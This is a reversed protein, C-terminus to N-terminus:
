PAPLLHLVSGSSQRNSAIFLEGQPSVWLGALTGECGWYTSATAQVRLDASLQTWAKGNYHLLAGFSGSVFVETSSRGWVSVWNDQITSPIGGIGCDTRAFEQVRKRDIPSGLLAVFLVIEHEASLRVLVLIRGVFADYHVDCNGCRGSGIFTCRETGTDSGPRTRYDENDGMRIVFYEEDKALDPLAKQGACVDCDDIDM